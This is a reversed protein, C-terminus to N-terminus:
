ERYARGLANKPMGSISYNCNAVVTLFSDIRDLTAQCRTAAPEQSPWFSRADVNRSKSSLPKTERATM